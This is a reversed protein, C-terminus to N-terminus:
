PGSDSMAPVCDKSGAIPRRRKKSGTRHEGAFCGERIYGERIRLGARSLQEPRRGVIRGSVHRTAHSGGAAAVCVTRRLCEQRVQFWFCHGRAGGLVRVDSLEGDGQCLVARMSGDGYISTEEVTLCGAPRGECVRPVSERQRSAAVLASYLHSLPEARCTLKCRRVHLDGDNHRICFARTADVTVGEVKVNSWVDLAAEAAAAQCILKCGPAGILRLPHV